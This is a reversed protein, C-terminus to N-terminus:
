PAGSRGRGRRWCEDGADRRDSRDAPRSTCYARRFFPKVVYTQYAEYRREMM